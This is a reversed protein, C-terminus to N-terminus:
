FLAEADLGITIAGIVEGTGPDVIAASVQGVYVQASEDFEVEGVHIDAGGRGYTETFKAEDGQWYDSTPASVAVNLGHNDMIFVEAIAGRSEAIRARLFEAAPNNVVGDILPRSATGLEARWTGDAADIDAQTLATGAANQARIADVIAADQLWPAIASAYYSRLAPEFDNAAAPLAFLAAAAALMSLKM